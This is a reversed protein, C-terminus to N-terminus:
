GADAPPVACRVFSYPWSLDIMVDFLALDTNVEGEGAVLDSNVGGEEGSVSDANM